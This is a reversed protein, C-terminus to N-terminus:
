ACVLPSPNRIACATNAEMGDQDDVDDELLLDHARHRSRRYPSAARARLRAKSAAPQEGAVVAGLDDTWRKKPSHPAAYPSLVSTAAASVSHPM